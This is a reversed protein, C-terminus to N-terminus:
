AGFVGDGQENVAGGVDEVGVMLGGDAGGRGADEDILGFGM